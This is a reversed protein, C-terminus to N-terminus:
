SRTQQYAYMCVYMCVYMFSCVCLCVCVCLCICLYTCVAWTVGSPVNTADRIRQLYVTPMYILWDICM